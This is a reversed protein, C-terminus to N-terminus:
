PKERMFPKLAEKQIEACVALMLRGNASSPNFVTTEPRTEYGFSPALREYAEHFREALARPELMERFREIQSDRSSYRELNRILSEGTARLGAIEANKEELLQLMRDRELQRYQERNM